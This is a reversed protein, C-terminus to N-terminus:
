GIADFGPMKEILGSVTDFIKEPDQIKEYDAGGDIFSDNPVCATNIVRDRGSDYLAAGIGTTGTDLGLIIM